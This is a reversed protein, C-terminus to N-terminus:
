RPSRRSTGAAPPTCRWRAISGASGWESRSGVGILGDPLPFETGRALVQFPRIAKDPDPELWYASRSLEYILRPHGLAFARRGLSRAAVGYLSLVNLLQALALLTAPAIASDPELMDRLRALFPLGSEDEASLGIGIADAPFATHGLVHRRFGAPYHSGPVVPLGEDSGTLVLDLLVPVYQISLPAEPQAKCRLYTSWLHRRREVDDRNAESVEITGLAADPSRPYDILPERNEVIASM